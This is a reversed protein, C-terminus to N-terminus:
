VRCIKFNHFFYVLIRSYGCVTKLLLSIRQNGDLDEAQNGPGILVAGCGLRGLVVAGRAGM